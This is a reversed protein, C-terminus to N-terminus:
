SRIGSVDENIRRAAFGAADKRRSSSNAPLTNAWAFSTADLGDAFSVRLETGFAISNVNLTATCGDILEIM